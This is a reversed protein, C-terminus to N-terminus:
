HLGPENPLEDVVEPLLWGPSVTPRPVEKNEAWM